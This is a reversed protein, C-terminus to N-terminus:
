ERRSKILDELGLFAEYLGFMKGQELCRLQDDGAELAKNSAAISESWRKLLHSQMESLEKLPVAKDASFYNQQKYHLSGDEREEIFPSEPKVPNELADIRGRIARLEELLEANIAPQVWARSLGADLYQQYSM